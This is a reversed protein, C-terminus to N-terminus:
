YDILVSAALCIYVGPLKEGCWQVLLAYGDLVCVSCECVCVQTYTQATDALMVKSEGWEVTDTSATHWSSSSM